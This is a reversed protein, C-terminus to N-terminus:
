PGRDSIITDVLGYYRWVRDLYIRATEKTDTDKQCPVSILRKSLRCIFVILMDKGSKDPLFEKFDM